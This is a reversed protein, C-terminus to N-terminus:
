DKENEDTVDSVEVSAASAQIQAIEEELEKIKADIRSMQGLEDRVQELLGDGDLKKTRLYMEYTRIGITQLHRSKETQITMLNMKLKAIKAQRATSDAAHKTASKVKNFLNDFGPPAM